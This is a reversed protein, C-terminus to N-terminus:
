NKESRGNPYRWEQYCAKCWDCLGDRKKASAYFFESDAPFYDHCRACRKNLSNDIISFIGSKLRIKFLKDTYHASKKKFVVGNSATYIESTITM